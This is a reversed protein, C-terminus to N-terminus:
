LEVGAFRTEGIGTTERTTLDLLRPMSRSPTITAHTEYTQFNRLGVFDGLHQRGSADLGTSMAPFNGNIETDSSNGNHKSDVFAISAQRIREDNATSTGTRGGVFNVLRGLIVFELKFKISYITSKIITEYLYLSAAETGLLGFDMIIIIVNIGLLQALFKKSHERTLSRLLRAAKVIYLASLICEQIFFGCMQFKEMVNYGRVPAATDLSGNSGYTLVATPIHLIIANIIIM